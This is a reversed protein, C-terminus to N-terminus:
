SSRPPEKPSELHISSYTNVPFDFFSLADLSLLIVSAPKLTVAHHCIPSCLVCPQSQSSERDPTSNLQNAIVSVESDALPYCPELSINQVRAESLAECSVAPAMGCFLMMLAV